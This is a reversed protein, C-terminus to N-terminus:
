RILYPLHELMEEVFQEIMEELLEFKEEDVNIKKRIEFSIIANIKDSNEDYIKYCVWFKLPRLVSKKFGYLNYKNDNADFNTDFCIDKEKENFCKGVLGEYKDSDVRLCLKSTETEAFGGINKVIFEKKVLDRKIRFLKKIFIEVLKKALLFRIKKPVYVRIDIDFNEDPIELASKFVKTLTKRIFGLLSNRQKLLSKRDTEIRIIKILYFAPVLVGILILGKNILNTNLAYSSVIINCKKLEEIIIGLLDITGVFVFLPGIVSRFFHWILKSNKEKTGEM